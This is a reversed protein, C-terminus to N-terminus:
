GGTGPSSPARPSSGTPACHGTCCNPSPPSYPATQGALNPAAVQRRLVAVEHRLILMEADKAASSRSLLFLWAFIRTACLYLLRVLM